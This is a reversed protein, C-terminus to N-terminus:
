MNVVHRYVLAYGTTVSMRTIEVVDGQKADLEKAIPDERSLKPLQEKKIGLSAMTKEIEEESLLRHEPVIEHRMKHDVTM